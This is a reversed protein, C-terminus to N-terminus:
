VLGARIREWCKKGGASGARRRRLKAEATPLGDSGVMAVSKGNWIRSVTNRSIGLFRGITENTFGRAKMEKVRDIMAQTVKPDRV